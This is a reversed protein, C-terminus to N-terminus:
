EVPRCGCVSRASIPFLESTNQNRYQIPSLNVMLTEMLQNIEEGTFDRSLLHDVLEAQRPQGFALRYITLTKLLKSLRVQDVSFPYLPIVREIKRDSDSDIHWFPILECKGANQREQLDAAQFLSAWIDKTKISSDHNLSRAYKEAIQQRIALSKFRNIRGERQELDVPNSPLNWHVIRRCYSHFDLGEQEISTTSLLFPRFPSNFVERLGSARKQGSDTEIRQSGFEVAYHCRMKRPQDSKFSELSDVNITSANLNIASILQDVCGAVDVNQGHLLHFYEDLVAQLCGSACYDAVMQWYYQHNESLRLAAISEPKNFLSCFEDAVAMARSLQKPETLAQNTFLRTISRLTIVAPSGLALDALVEPLDEPIRGLGISEPNEFCAKFRNFHDQKSGLEDGKETAQNDESVGNSDVVNVASLWQSIIESFQASAQDLLLPAAWYWRDAEGGPTALQTIKPDKLLERIQDAVQSRLEDLSKNEALNQIPDIAHALTLSPYLLTYNSMNALQIEGNPGRRRAYRIQPVPHRRKGEETFYHRPEVEQEDVTADVGITRREVEYSVLTAAMRPVMVWSSFLLTKSFGESGIYADELPYYPLSPPVWLLKEGHTGIAKEILHDLRANSAAGKITPCLEQYDNIRKFDLWASGSQNLAKSVVPHDKHKRLDEKLKYRDLFSLPYLASKCFEIPKGRTSSVHALAKAVRDTAKFNEIDGASFPIAQDTEKWKVLIMSNANTTVSQRETRCIIPRLISEVAERHIGNISCPIGNGIDLLQRHLKRRHANYTDQKESDGRLLFKLVRNFDKYHDEGRQLDSHGTFAKFPTASLLLVRSDNEQEFFIKKAIIAQEEQSDQDILDRFRQFEDLIFLDADVYQLCCEVLCERLRSTLNYATKQHAKANEPNIDETLSLTAEYLSQPASIPLTSQAILQYGTDKIKAIYREALGERLTHAAKGRRADELWRVYDASTVTGKLLCRLEELLQGLIPDQSLLCYIIRREWVNGAGSAFRFSTAPTLTNLELVSQHEKKTNKPEEWALYAVRSVPTKMGVSKPFLNLKRINENAIVQNSCIYTVKLPRTDGTDIRKKIVKAILGRAIITKGLGVEDALLMCQQEKAYLSEYIAEVSAHQFDKLGKLGETVYQLTQEKDM